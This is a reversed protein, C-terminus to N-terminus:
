QIEEVDDELELKDIQEIFASFGKNMEMDKQVPEDRLFRVTKMTDKKYYYGIEIYKFIPPFEPQNLLQKVWLPHMGSGVMNFKEETSRLLKGENGAIIWCHMEEKPEYQLIEGDEKIAPLDGNRYRKPDPIKYDFRMWAPKLRDIEELTEPKRSALTCYGLNSGLTNLFFLLQDFHFSANFGYEAYVANSLDFTDSM